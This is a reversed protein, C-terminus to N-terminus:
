KAVEELYATKRQACVKCNLIICKEMFTDDLAMVWRQLHRLSFAHFAPDISSHHVPKPLPQKGMGHLSPKSMAKACSWGGPM